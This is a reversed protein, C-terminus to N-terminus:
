PTTTKVDSRGSSTDDSDDSDDSDEDTIEDDRAQIAKFAAELSASIAQESKLVYALKSSRYYEEKLNNVLRASRAQEAKLAAELQVVVRVDNSSGGREKGDDTGDCLTVNNSGYV